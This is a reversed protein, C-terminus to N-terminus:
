ISVRERVVAGDQSWGTLLVYDVGLLKQQVHVSAVRAPVGAITTEASASCRGDPARSVRVTITRTPIGRLALQISDGVVAQRELGLVRQESDLLPETALPGREIMRWYPRVPSPGAPMCADDVLAAYHVQNRNSSKDIVLVSPLEFLQTASAAVVSLAVPAGFVICSLCHRMLCAIRMEAIM